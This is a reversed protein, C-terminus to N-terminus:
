NICFTREAEAVLEREDNLVMSCVESIYQWRQGNERLVAGLVCGELSCVYDGAQTDQRVVYLYSDATMVITMKYTAMTKLARELIQDVSTTQKLLRDLESTELQALLQDTCEHLTLRGFRINTLRGLAQQALFDYTRGLALQVISDITARGDHCIRIARALALPGAHSTEDSAWLLETDQVPLIGLLVNWLNQMLDHIVTLSPDANCRLKARDVIRDIVSTAPQETLVMQVQTLVRGRICLVNPDNCCKHVNGSHQDPSNGDLGYTEAAEISGLAWLPLDDPLHSWDPVWSPLSANRLQEEASDTGRSRRKHVGALTILAQLGQRTMMRKTIETFVDAVSQMYNPIPLLEAGDRTLSLLAYIADRDDSARCHRTMLLATSLRMCDGRLDHRQEQARLVCLSNLPNWVEPRLHKICVWDCSSSCTGYSAFRAISEFTLSEKGAWIEVSTAKAVEQIIWKRSWYELCMIEDVKRMYDWDSLWGDDYIVPQELGSSWTSWTTWASNMLWAIVSTAQRYIQGMLMIQSAREALDSQNICIADAWVRRIGRRYMERLAAALNITCNMPQQNVVLDKSGMVDGGWCYSLAYFDHLGVLSQVTLQCFIQDKENSGDCKKAEVLELIRIEFKVQSLPTYLTTGPKTSARHQFDKLEHIALDYDMSDQAQLMRYRVSSMEKDFRIIKSKGTLRAALKEVKGLDGAKAVRRACYLVVRFHKYSQNTLHARAFDDQQWLEDMVPITQELKELEHLLDHWISPEQAKCAKIALEVNAKAQALAAYVAEPSISEAVAEENRKPM